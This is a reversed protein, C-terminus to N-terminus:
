SCLQLVDELQVLDVNNKIKSYVREATQNSINAFTKLAELRATDDKVERLIQLIQDANFLGEGEVVQRISRESSEVERITPPKSCGNSSGPWKDATVTALTVSYPTVKTPIKIEPYVVPRFSTEGSPPQNLRMM